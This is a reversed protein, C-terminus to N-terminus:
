RSAQRVRVGHNLSIGDNGAKVGTRVRVGHQLIPGGANIKTRLRVKPISKNEPKTNSMTTEAASTHRTMRAM